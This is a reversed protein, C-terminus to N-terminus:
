SSDSARKWVILILWVLFVQVGLPIEEPFSAHANRSLAKVPNMRGVETGDELLVFTRSFASTKRLQFTRDALEVVFSNRLVSEKMASAYIVGNAELVFPGTMGDRYLEFAGDGLVIEARERWSSMELQAILTEGEMVDFKWSFWSRPTIDLVAPSWFPSIRCWMDAASM